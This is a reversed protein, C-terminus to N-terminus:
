TPLHVRTHIDHFGRVARAPAPGGQALMAPIYVQDVFLDFAEKSVWVDSIRWGDPAPGCAHSLIGDRAGEGSLSPSAGVRDYPAQSVGPFEPLAMATM